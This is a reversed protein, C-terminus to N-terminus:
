AAHEDATQRPLGYMVDLTVEIWRRALQGATETRAFSPVFKYMHGGFGTM